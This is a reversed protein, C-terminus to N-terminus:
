KTLLRIGTFSLKQTQSLWSFCHPIVGVQALNVAEAVTDHQM